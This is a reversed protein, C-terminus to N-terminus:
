GQALRAQAKPRSFLIWLGSALSLLAAVLILSVGIGLGVDPDDFDSAGVVLSAPDLVKLLAALSAAAGFLAIFMAEPDSFPNWFYGLVGLVAIAVGSIIAALGWGGADMGTVPSGGGISAWTLFTSAVMLVGLAAVILYLPTRMAISADDDFDAMTQVDASVREITASSAHM